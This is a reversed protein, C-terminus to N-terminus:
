IGSWLFAATRFWIRGDTRAPAASLKELRSGPPIRLDALVEAADLM